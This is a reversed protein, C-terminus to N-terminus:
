KRVSTSFVDSRPVWAGARRVRGLSMSLSPRERLTSEECPIEKLREEISSFSVYSEEPEIEKGNGPDFRKFRVLVGMRDPALLFEPKPESPDHRLRYYRLLEIM